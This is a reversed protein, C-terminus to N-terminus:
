FHCPQLKRFLMEVIVATFTFVKGGFIFLFFIFNQIKSSINQNLNQYFLVLLTILINYKM